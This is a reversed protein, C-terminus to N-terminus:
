GCRTLQAQMGDLRCVWGLYRGADLRSRNNSNQCDSAQRCSGKSSESVKETTGFQQGSNFCSRCGTSKKRERGIEIVRGFWGGELVGLRWMWLRLLGCLIASFRILM